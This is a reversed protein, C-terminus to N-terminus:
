ATFYSSQWILNMSCSAHTYIGHIGALTRCKFPWRRETRFQAQTCFCQLVTKMQLVNGCCKWLFSIGDKIRQIASYCKERSKTMPLTFCLTQIERSDKVTKKKEKKRRESNRQYSPNLLGPKTRQRRRYGVVQLEKKQANLPLPTSNDVREREGSEEWLGKRKKEEEEEEKQGILWIHGIIQQPHTPHLFPRSSRSSSMTHVGGGGERDTSSSLRTRSSLGASFHTQLHKYESWFLILDKWWGGGESFGPGTSTREGARRKFHLPHIM